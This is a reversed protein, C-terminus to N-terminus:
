IRWKCTTYSSQQLRTSIGMGQPCVFHFKYLTSVIDYNCFNYCFLLSSFNGPIETNRQLFTILFHYSYCLDLVISPFCANKHITDLGESSLTVDDDDYMTSDDGSEPAITTEASTTTPSTSSQLPIEEEHQVIKAYRVAVSYSPPPPYSTHIENDDEGM